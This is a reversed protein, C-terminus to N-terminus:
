QIDFMQNNKKSRTKFSVEQLLIIKLLLTDTIPVNGSLAAFVMAKSLIHQSASAAFTKNLLACLM